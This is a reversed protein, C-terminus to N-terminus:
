EKSGKNSKAMGAFQEEDEARQFDIIEQRSMAGIKGGRLFRGLLVGIVLSSLFWVVIWELISM